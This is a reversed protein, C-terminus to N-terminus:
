EIFFALTYYSSIHRYSLILKKDDFYTVRFYNVPIGRLEQRIMINGHDINFKDLTFEQIRFDKERIKGNYYRMKLQSFLRCTPKTEALKKFALTDLLRTTYVSGTLNEVSGYTTTQGYYGYNRGRYNNPYLYTSTGLVGSTQSSLYVVNCGQMAAVMKLEQKAREQLKFKNSRFWNVRSASVGINGVKYLGQTADQQDVVTVKEWEEPGTLMPQKSLKNEEVSGNSYGIRVVDARRIKHIVQDTSLVYSVHEPSVEKVSAVIKQDLTYVTDLKQASSIFALCSIFLILLYKM